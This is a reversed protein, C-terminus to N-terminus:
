DHRETDEQDPAAATARKAMAGVAAGVAAAGFESPDYGKERLFANCHVLASAVRKEAMSVSVGLRTAIQKFKLGEVKRMLLTRRVEPSLTELAAAFVLLKQRADLQDEASVHQKDEFVDMGAFDEVNDTTAHRSRRAESIAVNRAVRLLFARPNHIEQTAEAAFGKLFADQALDDVDEKRARYKAIVRRIM